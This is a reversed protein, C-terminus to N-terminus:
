FPSLVIVCSSNAMQAPHLADQASCLRTCKMCLEVKFRPQGSFQGGISNISGDDSLINIFELNHRKGTAFDNPDHAPTIKVAGTGFNMDVLEADCIIPILRGDLPHKVHQGHFHTYRCCCCSTTFALALSIGRDYGWTNFHEQSM